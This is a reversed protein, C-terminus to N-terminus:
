RTVVSWLGILFLALTQAAIANTGDYSVDINLTLKHGPLIVYDKIRVIDERTIDAALLNRGPVVSIGAHDVPTFLETREDWIHLRTPTTSGAAATGFAIARLIFQRGSPIVFGDKIEPFGTPFLCLDLPFNRTANLAMSHTIPAAYVFNVSRSRGLEDKKVGRPGVAYLVHLTPITRNFTFTINEDEDAEIAFGPFLKGFFQFTSIDNFSYEPESVLIVDGWKLPIRAVLTTGVHVDVYTRDPVSDIWIDIIKHSAGPEKPIVSTTVNDFRVYRLSTVDYDSIPM